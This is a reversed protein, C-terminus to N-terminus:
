PRRVPARGGASILERRWPVLAVRSRMAAAEGTSTATAPGFPAPFVVNTSSNGGVRGEPRSGQRWSAARAASTTRLSRSRRPTENQMSGDEGIRRSRFEREELLRALATVGDHQDEDAELAALQRGRTHHLSGLLSPAVHRHSSRTRKGRTNAFRALAQRGDIVGKEELVARGVFRIAEDRFHAGSTDQFATGRAGALVERPNQRRFRPM